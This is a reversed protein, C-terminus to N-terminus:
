KPDLITIWDFIYALQPLRKRKSHILLHFYTRVHVYINNQFLRHCDIVKNIKQKNSIYGWGMGCGIKWEEM